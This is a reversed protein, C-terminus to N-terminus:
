SFSTAISNITNVCGTRCFDASHNVGCIFYTNVISGFESASAHALQGLVALQHAASLVHEIVFGVVVHFHELVLYLGVVRQAANRLNQAGYGFGELVATAHQFLFEVAGAVVGDHVGLGLINIMTAVEMAVVCRELLVLEFNSHHAQGHCGLSLEVIQEVVADIANQRWEEVHSSKAQVIAHLRALESSRRGSGLTLRQYSFGAPIGNARLLAALLNAKAWCIGVGERLTDSASVTVRRDQADWSHKIEDRVFYYTNRILSLEDPSDTRLREALSSVAPHDYDVYETKELYENYM